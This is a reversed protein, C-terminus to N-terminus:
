ALASQVASGFPQNDLFWCGWTEGNLLVARFELGEQVEVLVVPAGDREDLVVVDSPEVSFM